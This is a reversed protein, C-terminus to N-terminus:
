GILKIKLASFLFAIMLDTKKFRTESISGQTTAIIIAVTIETHTAINIVTM